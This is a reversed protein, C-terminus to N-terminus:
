WPAGEVADEIHAMRVLVGDLGFELAIVDVRWPGCWGSQEVYAEGLRALRRQKALTVSEEPTGMAKGRRTRVEVVVLWDGRMAIIDIEGWRTRWNRAAIQYGEAELHTAALQEGLRGLAQRRDPPRPSPPM